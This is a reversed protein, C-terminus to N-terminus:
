CQEEAQIAQIQVLTLETLEAIEELAMNRQLLRRAVKIGRVQEGEGMGLQKGEEITQAYWQEYAPALNM